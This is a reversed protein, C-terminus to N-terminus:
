WMFYRRHWFYAILSLMRIYRFGYRNIRRKGISMIDTTGIVLGSCRLYRKQRFKAFGSDMYIINAYEYPWVVGLGKTEGRTLLRDFYEIMYPGGVHQYVTNFSTLVDVSGAPINPIGDYMNATITLLGEQPPVAFAGGNVAVCTVDRGMTFGWSTIHDILGAGKQTTAAQDEGPLSQQTYGTFLTAYASSGVDMLVFQRGTRVVSEIRGPLADLLRITQGDSEFWAASLQTELSAYPNEISREAGPQWARAYQGYIDAMVIPPLLEGRRVQTMYELSSSEEPFSMRTIIDFYIYIICLKYPSKITIPYALIIVAVIM